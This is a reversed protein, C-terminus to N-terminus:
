RRATSRSTPTSNAAFSHHAAASGTRRPFRGDPPSDNVRMVEGQSENTRAHAASFVEM